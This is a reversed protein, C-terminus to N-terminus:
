SAAQVPVPVDSNATSGDGLQGNTGAGWCDMHSTSLRACFAFTGSIMTTATSINRVAVPVDSFPAFTGNGLQGQDGSGWCNLHNSSLRACFENWGGSIATATSINKVAVPVASNTTTGNGLEGKPNAGWCKPHGTSLVACFSGGDYDAAVATAGSVGLVTVPVDSPTTTGNGLQGSGNYGWCDVHGTSLRACLTSTSITSRNDTVATATTINKVAVPIDSPATSGDGLQGHDGVGWCDVHGTSLLACFADLAGIVTTANSIGRVAVPVDSNATTGNGLQGFVGYGWCDVHGTSLVACFGQDGGFVATATSINKVAVPVASSTMTGNGLQGSTNDGWCKLHGTSLVACFSDADTIGHYDAAVAKAGSVGLVAVPVHSDAFTGNGLQGSGGSGWCDVTGTSLLACLSSGGSDALSVVNALTGALHISSGAGAPAAVGGIGAAVALPILIRRALRARHFKRAATM